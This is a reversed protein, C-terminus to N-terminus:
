SYFGDENKTDLMHKFAIEYVTNITKLDNYMAGLSWNLTKITDNFIAFGDKEM